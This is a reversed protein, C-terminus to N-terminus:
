RARPVFLAIGDTIVEHTLTGAPEFHRERRADGLEATGSKALM